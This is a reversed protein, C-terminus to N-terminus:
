CREYFMVYVNSGTDFLFQSNEYSRTKNDNFQTWKNSDEDCCYAIYHGYDIEGHHEIFGKLRYRGRKKEKQVFKKGQPTSSGQHLYEALDLYPDQIEISNSLKKPKPYFVFRKIFIILIEPFRFIEQNKMIDSKQGCGECSFDEIRESKFFNNILNELPVSRILKSRTTGCTPTPFRGKSIWRYSASRSM